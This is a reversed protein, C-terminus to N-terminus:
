ASLVKKGLGKLCNEAIEKTSHIEAYVGHIYRSEVVVGSANKDRYLIAYRENRISMEM